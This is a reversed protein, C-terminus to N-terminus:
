WHFRLNSRITRIGGTLGDIHKDTVPLGTKQFFKDWGIRMIWDRVREDRDADQTWTEVINKVIDTAEEWRPPTNPLYPVVMKAYAPGAGTNGAKGGVVVAVGATKTKMTIADCVMPCYACYICRGPDITIGVKGKPRIAATPCVRITTPRECIKIKEDDVEPTERYVGVLGIDATSGEGCQNLCGSVSIKLKAPYPEVKSVFDGYLVDSIAKCISPPDTASIQCHLWGTCCTTQHFRRNTGGVPLGLQELEKILGDVDGSQVGVFEVQNRTTVRFFGESYDDALDCIQNLLATSVRANIPMGVRVTLCEEGSKATHKYVGPGVFEHGVWQGYNRKIIPPLVEEAPPIGVGPM